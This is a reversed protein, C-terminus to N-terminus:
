VGSRSSRTSSLLLHVTAGNGALTFSTTGVAPRIFACNETIAEIWTSQGAPPIAIGNGQPDTLTAFVYSATATPNLNPQNSGQMIIQTDNAAPRYVQVSKDSFLGSALALDRQNPFVEGIDMSGNTSSMSAWTVVYQNGSAWHHLVYAIHGM